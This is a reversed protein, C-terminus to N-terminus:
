SHSQYDNLLEQVVSGQCNWPYFWRGGVEGAGSARIVSVRFGVGGLGWFM